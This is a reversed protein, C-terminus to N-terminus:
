IKDMHSEPTQYSERGISTTTANSMSVSVLPHFVKKKRKQKNFSLIFVMKGLERQSVYRDRRWTNQSDYFMKMNKPRGCRLNFDTLHVLTFPIFLSISLSLPFSFLNCLWLWYNLSETSSDLFIMGFYLLQRTCRPMTHVDCAKRRSSPSPFLLRLVYLPFSLSFEEFLFTFSDIRKIIM